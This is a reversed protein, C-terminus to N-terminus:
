LAWSTNPTLRGLDPITPLAYGHDTLVPTGVWAGVLEDARTEEPESLVPLARRNADAQSCERSCFLRATSTERFQPAPGGCNLCRAGELPQYKRRTQRERMSKAAMFPHDPTCTIEATANVTITPREVASTDTVP